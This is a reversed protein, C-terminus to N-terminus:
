LTYSANVDIDTIVLTFEDSAAIINFVTVV